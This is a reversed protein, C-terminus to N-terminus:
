GAEGEEKEKGAAAEAEPEAAEEAEEEAGAAAVEARSIAVVAIIMDADELVRVGEGVQLDGVSVHQNLHLGSM